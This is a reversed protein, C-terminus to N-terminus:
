AGSSSEVVPTSGAARAPLYVPWFQLCTQNYVETKVGFSVVGVVSETLVLPLTGLTVYGQTGGDDDILPDNPAYTQTSDFETTVLEFGGTAPYTAVVNGSINGDDSAVDFDTTANISWLPMSNSDVGGLGAILDGSADLSVLAGRSWTEGTAIGAHYQLDHMPVSGSIVVLLHDFNQPSTFLSM